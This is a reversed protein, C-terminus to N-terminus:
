LSLVLTLQYSNYLKSYKLRWVSFHIVDSSASLEVWYIQMYKPDDHFDSHIRSDADMQNDFAAYSSGLLISIKSPVTPNSKLMRDVM